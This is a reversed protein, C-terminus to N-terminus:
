KRGQRRHIAVGSVVAIVAAGAMLLPLPSQYSPDGTDAPDESIILTTNGTQFSYVPIDAETCLGTVPSCYTLRAKGLDYRGPKTLNLVAQPVFFDTIGDDHFIITTHNSFCFVQRIQPYACSLDLGPPAKYIITANEVPVHEVEFQLVVARGAEYEYPMYLSITAVARPVGFLEWFWNEYPVCAPVSANDLTIVLTNGYVTAQSPIHQAVEELASENLYPSVIRFVVSSAGVAKIIERLEEPILLSLDFGTRGLVSLCTGSSNSPVSYDMYNIFLEEDSTIYRLLGEISARLFLGSENRTMSFSGPVRGLVELLAKSVEAQLAPDDGRIHVVVNLQDHAGDVTVHVAVIPTTGSAHATLSVSLLLSILLIATIALARVPGM